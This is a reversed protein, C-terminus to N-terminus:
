NHSLSDLSIMMGQDRRAYLDCLFHEFCGVEEVNHKLWANAKETNFLRPMVFGNIFPKMLGAKAGLVMRSHYIVGEPVDHFKHRLDMTTHGFKTAILGM